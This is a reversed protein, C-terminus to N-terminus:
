CLTWSQDVEVEVGDFNFETEAALDGNPSLSLPLQTNGAPIKRYRCEAIM